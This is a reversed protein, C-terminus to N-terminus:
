WRAMFREASAIANTQTPQVAFGGGFAAVSASIAVSSARLRSDRSAEPWSEASRTALTKRARMSASFSAPSPPPKATCGVCIIALALASRKMAPM